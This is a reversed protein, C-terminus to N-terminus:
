CYALVKKEKTGASANGLDPIIPIMESEVSLVVGQFFMLIPNM